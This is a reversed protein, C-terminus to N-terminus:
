VRVRREPTGDPPNPEGVQAALPRKMSNTCPNVLQIRATKRDGVPGTPAGTGDEGDRVREHATRDLTLLEGTDNRWTVGLTVGDLPADDGEM